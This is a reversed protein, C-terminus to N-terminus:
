MPMLRYVAVAFVAVFGLRIFRLKTMAARRDVGRQSVVLGIAAPMYIAPGVFIPWPFSKPDAFVPLLGILAVALGFLCVGM